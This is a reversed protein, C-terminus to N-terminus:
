LESGKQKNTRSSAVRKEELKVNAICIQRKLALIFSSQQATTPKVAKHWKAADTVQFNKNSKPLTQFSNTPTENRSSSLGSDCLDRGFSNKQRALTGGTNNM